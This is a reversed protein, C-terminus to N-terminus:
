SPMVDHIRSKMIDGPALPFATLIGLALGNGGASAIGM